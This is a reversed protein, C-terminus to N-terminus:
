NMVTVTSYDGQGMFAENPICWWGPRTSEWEIKRAVIVCDRVRSLTSAIRAWRFV